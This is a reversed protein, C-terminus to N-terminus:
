KTLQIEFSPGNRDSCIGSKENTEIVLNYTPNSTQGDSLQCEITIKMNEESVIRYKGEYYFRTNDEINTQQLSVINEAKILFKYDISPVSIKKGNIIMDDGYQNKMNYSPQIGHYLGLLESSLEQSKKQLSEESQSISKFEDAESVSNSCSIIQFVPTFLLILFIWRSSTFRDNSLYM